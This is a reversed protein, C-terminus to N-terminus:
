YFREERRGCRVREAFEPAEDLVRLFNGEIDSRVSDFQDISWAIFVGFLNDNTSLSFIVRTGRIYMEFGETPVGSWYSFYWCSLPPAEEYKAAGVTGPWCRIGVTPALLSERRKRQLARSGR